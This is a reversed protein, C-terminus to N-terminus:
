EGVGAALTNLLTILSFFVSDGELWGIDIGQSDVM